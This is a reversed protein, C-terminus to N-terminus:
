AAELQAVETALGVAKRYAGVEFDFLLQKEFKEKDLGM